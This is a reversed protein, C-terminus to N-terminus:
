KRHTRRGRTRKNKNTRRMRMHLQKRRTSYKRKHKRGGRTPVKPLRSGLAKYTNSMLTEVEADLGKIDEEFQKRTKGIVSISHATAWMAFDFVSTKCDHKRDSDTGECDVISVIHKDGDKIIALDKKLTPHEITIRPREIKIIKSSNSISSIHFSGDIVTIIATFETNSIVGKEICRVMIENTAAAAAAAM